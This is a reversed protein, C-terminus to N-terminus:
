KSDYNVKAEMNKGIKFKKMEGKIESMNESKLDEDKGLHLTKAWTREKRTLMQYCTIFFLPILHFSYIWYGVIGKFIQPISINDRNLTVIVGPFFGFASVMGIILPANMKIIFDNLYFYSIINLGLVIFGFFIFLNLGYFAVHEIIGFTRFVPIKSKIIKPTYIFLTEFNGIAWRTRQRFLQKWNPVAEQYVCAEGCYRIAFRDIMLRISLNLDETIAFGDWGGINYIAEKKVIQGNGGLFGAKGLVDKARVINGFVALEIHQMATLFNEDKNYMKIRSQVGQVKEDNLYPIIKTLFDPDVRADADFVAIAEGKSIELGDNLVFGKGKGSRPPVRTIVKLHNFEKKLENLVEGTRDESGDNIVILEFNRKGKYFYDVNALSRVCDAITHEENHAPVMMTVFPPVEYPTVKDQKFLSMVALFITIASPVFLVWQLVTFNLYLFSYLILISSIGLMGIVCIKEILLEKNKEKVDDEIKKIKNLNHAHKKLAINVTHKLESDNYPKSIFGYPYTIIANKINEKEDDNVLYIIPIDLKELKKSTEIGDMDGKLEISMIILDPHLKKAKKIAKKGTDETDIVNYGINELKQKIDLSVSEDEVILINKKNISAIKENKESNKSSDKSNENKKRQYYSKKAKLNLHSNEDTKDSYRSDNNGVVGMALNLKETEIKNNNIAIKVSRNLKEIEIPKLIFGSGLDINEKFKEDNTNSNLDDISAIFLVPLDLALIKKSVEIGSDNGKLVLDILILDPRKEIAINIGEEGTPVIDIVKYNLSELKNKLDIGTFKDDEVILINKSM